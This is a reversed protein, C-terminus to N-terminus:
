IYRKGNERCWGDMAEKDSYPVPGEKLIQYPEPGKGALLLIDGSKLRSLGFDVAEKRDLIIDCETSNKKAGLLVEKAIESPDESRPNDSSIIVHDALRSATEGMM